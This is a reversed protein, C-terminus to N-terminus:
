PRQRGKHNTRVRRRASCSAAPPRMSLSMSAAPPKKRAITKIAGSMNMFVIKKPKRHNGMAMIKKRNDKGTGEMRRNEAFVTAKVIAAAKKKIVATAQCLYAASSRDPNRSLRSRVGRRTGPEPISGQELFALDDLPAREELEEGIGLDKLAAFQVEGEGLM